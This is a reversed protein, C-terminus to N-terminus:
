KHVALSNTPSGAFIKALDSFNNATLKHMLGRRYYEVTRISLGLRTAMMKSTNGAVHMTAVESEKPSLLQYLNSQPGVKSFTWIEIGQRCQNAIAVGHVRCWFLEGHCRRM